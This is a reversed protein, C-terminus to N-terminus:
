LGSRGAKLSWVPRQPWSGEVRSGLVCPQSGTQVGHSEPTPSCRYASAGHARPRATSHQAPSSRRFIRNRDSGTRVGRSAGPLTLAIKNIGDAKPLLRKITALSLQLNASLVDYASLATDELKSVPLPPFEIELLMEGDAMAALASDAAQNVLVQFSEPPVSLEAPAAPPAPTTAAAAEAAEDAMAYPAYCRAGSACATLRPPPVRLGLGWAATPAVLSVLLLSRVGM